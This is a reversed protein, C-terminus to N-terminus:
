HRWGNLTKWRLALLEEPVHATRERKQYYTRVTEMLVPELEEVNLGLSNM